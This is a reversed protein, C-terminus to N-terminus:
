EEKFKTLTEIVVSQIWEYYREECEEWGYEAADYRSTIDKDELGCYLGKRMDNAGLEPADLFTFLADLVGVLEKKNAQLHEIQKQLSRIEMIMMDTNFAEEHPNSEPNM